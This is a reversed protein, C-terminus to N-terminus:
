VFPVEIITLLVLKVNFFLLRSFSFDFGRGYVRRM